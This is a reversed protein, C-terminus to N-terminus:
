IHDRQGLPAAESSSQCPQVLLESVDRESLNMSVTSAPSEEYRRVVNYRREKMDALSTETSSSSHNHQVRQWSDLGSLHIASDPFHEFRPQKAPSEQERRRAGYSLRKTASTISKKGSRFIKSMSRKSEKPSHRAAELGEWTEGVSPVAFDTMVQEERPGTSEMWRYERSPTTWSWNGFIDQYRVADEPSEGKGFREHLAYRIRYIWGM